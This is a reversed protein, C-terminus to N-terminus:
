VHKDELTEIKAKYIKIYEQYTWDNWKGGAKKKSKLNEIQENEILSVEKKPEEVEITGLFRNGGPTVPGPQRGTHEWLHIKGNPDQVAYLKMKGGKNEEVADESASNRDSDHVICDLIRYLVDGM